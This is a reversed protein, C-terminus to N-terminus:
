LSFVCIYKLVTTEIYCHLVVKNWELVASFNVSINSFCLCPMHGHGGSGM